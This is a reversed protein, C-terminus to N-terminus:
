QRYALASLHGLPLCWLNALGVLLSGETFRSSAVMGAAAKQRLMGPRAASVLWVASWIGHGWRRRAVLRAVAICVGSIGAIQRGREAAAASGCRMGLLKASSRSCCGGQLGHVCGLVTTIGVLDASNLGFTHQIFRPPTCADTPRPLRCGTTYNLAGRHGITLGRLGM